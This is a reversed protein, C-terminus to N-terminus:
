PMLMGGNVHWSQGTVYDGAPGALAVVCAAVEEPTAKRALPIDDVTMDGPLGGASPGRVTEVMGPVVCNVRIGDAAWERALAKTLGAVAAKAAVAHARGVAGRHGALGGINVIRGGSAALLGYAERCCLFTGDVVVAHVARWAELSMSGAPAQGRVSANNVLLDLRGFRRDVAELLARVEAERSIDALHVLGRGGAAELEALLAEAPEVSRNAHIVVAAGEGALAKVIARGINRAAGTVLAVKGELSTV